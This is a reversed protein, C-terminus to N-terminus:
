HIRGSAGGAGASGLGADVLHRALRKVEATAVPRSDPALLAALCAALRADLGDQAMASLALLVGEDPGVILVEASLIEPPRRAGCLIADMLMAFHPLARGLGAQEFGRRLPSADGAKRAGMEWAVVEQHWQRIAWLLFRDGLPLVDIAPALTASPAPRRRPPLAHRDQHKM